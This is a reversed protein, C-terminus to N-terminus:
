DDQVEEFESMELIDRIEGVRRTHDLGGDVAVAGCSCFKFDHRTKSEIIDDCRACQIANRIIRYIKM